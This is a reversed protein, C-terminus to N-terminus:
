LSEIREFGFELGTGNEILHLETASVTYSYSVDTQYIVDAILTSNEIRLQAHAESTSLTYPNRTLRVTGFYDHGAPDHWNFTLDDRFFVTEQSGADRWVGFVGRGDGLVLDLTWPAWVLQNQNLITYPVADGVSFLWGDESILVTAPGFPGSVQKWLGPLLPDAFRKDIGRRDSSAPRLLSHRPM